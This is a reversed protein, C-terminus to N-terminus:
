KIATPQAVGTVGEPSHLYFSISVLRQLWRTSQWNKPDTPKSKTRLPDEFMCRQRPNEKANALSEQRNKV